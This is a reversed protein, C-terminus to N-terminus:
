SFTVFIQLEQHVLKYIGQGLRFLEQARMLRYTFLCFRETVIDILALIWYKFFNLQQM